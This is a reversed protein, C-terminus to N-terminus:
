FLTLIRFFLSVSQKQKVSVCEYMRLSVTLRITQGNIGQITREEKLITTAATHHLSHNTKRGSIGCGQVECNDNELM